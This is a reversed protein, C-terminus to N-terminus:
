MTRQMRPSFVSRPAGFLAGQPRNGQSMLAQVLVPGLSAPISSWDIDGLNAGPFLGSLLAGGGAGMAAPQTREYRRSLEDFFPTQFSRPMGALMEPTFSSEAGLQTPYLAGLMGSTQAGVPRSSLYVDRWSSRASQSMARWGEPTVGEEMLFMAMPSDTGPFQIEPARPTVNRLDAYTAIVNQQRQDINALAQDLFGRIDREQMEVNAEFDRYAETNLAHPNEQNEVERWAGRMREVIADRQESFKRLQQNLANRTKRLDNGTLGKTFADNWLRNWEATGIDGFMMEEPDPDGPDPLTGGPMLGSVDDATIDIGRSVLRGLEEGEAGMSLDYGYPDEKPFTGELRQLERERDDLAKRALDTPQDYRLHEWNWIPGSPSTITPDYGVGTQMSATPRGSAIVEGTVPDIIRENPTYNQIPGYGVPAGPGGYDLADQWYDGAVPPTPSGTVTSGGRPDGVPPIPPTMPQYVGGTPDDPTIGFAQSQMRRQLLAELDANLPQPQRAADPYLPYPAGLVNGQGGGRGQPIGQAAEWAAIEQEMTNPQYM